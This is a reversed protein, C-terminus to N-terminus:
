WVQCYNLKYELLLLNLLFATNKGGSSLHKGKPSIGVRALTKKSFKVRPIDNKAQTVINELHEPIQSSKCSDTGLSWTRSNTVPIEFSDQKKEQNM